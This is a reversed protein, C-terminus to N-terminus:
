RLSHLLNGNSGHENDIQIEDLDSINDKFRYNWTKFYKKTSSKIICCRQDLETSKGMANKMM